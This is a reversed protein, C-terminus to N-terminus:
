NLRKSASVKRRNALVWFGLAIAGFTLALLGTLNLLDACLKSLYANIVRASLSSIASGVIENIIQRIQTLCVAWIGFSIFLGLCIHWTSALRNRSVVVLAIGVFVIALLFPLSWTKFFNLVKLVTSIDSGFVQFAGPRSDNGFIELAAVYQDGSIVRKSVAFGIVAIPTLTIAILKIVLALLRSM